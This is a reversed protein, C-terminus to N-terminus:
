AQRWLKNVRVLHGRDEFRQLTKYVSHYPRGVARAIDGTSMTDDGLAGIIPHNPSLTLGPNVTSYIARHIRAAPVLKGGDYQIMGAALAGHIGRQISELPKALRQAITEASDCGRVVAWLLPSWHYLDKLKKRTIPDFQKKM